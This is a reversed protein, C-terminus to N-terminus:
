NLYKILLYDIQPDDGVQYIHQSIRKFGKKRYFHQAPINHEYVGLWMASKYKARAISEAKDYLLNGLGQHQYPADLYIRELELADRAIHETQASGVNVKLYGAVASNVLLFFFKSEPNEIEKRLVNTDYKTDLFRAMDDPATM